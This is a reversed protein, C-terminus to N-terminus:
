KFVCRALSEQGRRGEGRQAEATCSTPSPYVAKAPLEQCLQRCQQWLSTPLTSATPLGSRCASRPSSPAVETWAYHFTSPHTDHRDVDRRKEAEEPTDGSSAAGESIEFSLTLSGM